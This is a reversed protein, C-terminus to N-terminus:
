ARRRRLVLGLVLLGLMASVDGRGGQCCGGTSGPPDPPAIGADDGAPAGDGDDPPTTQIHRAIRSVSVEDITGDFNGGSPPCAPANGAGGITLPDATGELPAPPFTEEAVVVDDFRIQFRGSGADYEATVKTWTAGDAAIASGSYLERVAGGAVRVRARIGRPEELVLSYAEGKRLLVRFNNGADCDPDGAPRITMEMTIGTTPSLSPDDDVELWGGGAIAAKGLVGNNAGPFGIAGHVIATNFYGSVDPSRTTDLQGQPTVSENMHWLGAYRGDLGDDFSIEVYNSTNSGFFPWVDQGSTVPLQSFTAPGPSSFFLRVSDTTSPNIGGDINALGWNTPYGIVSTANRRPGCGPPDETGRCPMNAASFMVGDGDPLLWPYAGYVPAGDSFPTGDAARLQRMALRYTTNVAPDAIMHSLSRPTSWGTRGCATPNVSYMMLSDQDGNALSGNWVMLKGDRTFTPEIGHLVGNGISALPELTGLQFAVPHATPTGPEAIRLVLQRRRFTQGGQAVNKTADSDVLWVDYCAFPGAANPANQADCAYPVHAPDPECIGLANEGNPEGDVIMLPASWIPGSADPLGDTAYTTAEPRLVYAMWGPGTRVIYVRGDFSANQGNGGFASPVSRTSTAAAAVGAAYLVVAIALNRM